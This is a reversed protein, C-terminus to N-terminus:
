GAALSVAELTQRSKQQRNTYVRKRGLSGDVKRCLTNNVMQLVPDADRWMDHPPLSGSIIM